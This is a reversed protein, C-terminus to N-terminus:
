LHASIAVCAFMLASHPLRLTMALGRTKGEALGLTFEAFCDRAWSAMRVAIAEDCALRAQGVQAYIQRDRTFGLDTAGRLSAHAGTPIVASPTYQGWPSGAMFMSSLAGSRACFDLSSMTSQSM